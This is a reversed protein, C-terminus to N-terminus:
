HPRTHRRGLRWVDLCRRGPFAFLRVRAALRVWQFTFDTSWEHEEDIDALAEPRAGQPWDVTSLGEGVWLWCRKATAPEEGRAEDALRSLADFAPNGVLHVRDPPAGLSVLGERAPEDIVAIEDPLHRFGGFREAYNVWSDVYALSPIDRERAWRWYAGDEEAQISTGTVLARPGDLADMYSRAEGLSAVEATLLGDRRWVEAAQASALVCLSASPVGMELLRRIVPSLARASGAQRAFFIM